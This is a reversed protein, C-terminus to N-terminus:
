DDDDPIGDLDLNNKLAYEVFEELNITGSGDHDLDKYIQQPNDLKVGFTNLIPISNLFEEENVLGGRNVDILSFMQYYEFQKRIFILLKKFEFYEIQKSDSFFGDYPNQLNERKTKFYALQVVRKIQTEKLEDVIDDLVFMVLKLVETM